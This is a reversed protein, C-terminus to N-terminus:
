AASRENAQYWDIKRTVFMTVALIAFSAMSGVLLAYDEERLLMFLLGYLLSLAGLVIVARLVSKLASIAYLFTLGITAGSSWLYAQEFGRHEALSLLLMYFVVQAVGVLLYQVAHVRAGTLLEVLFFSLFSLGIFLVAYKLAREVLQYHDVPQYLRVGFSAAKLNPAESADTTWSQPLSRTLSPVTWSAEFGQSTIKPDLPLTAGFFSPHVWNSTMKIETMRGLPAISFRDIGRLRVSIRFPIAEGPPEQSIAVHVGNGVASVSSGPEVSLGKQDGFDVTFDEVVGRMDSLGFSVIGEAWLIQEESGGLARIESMSFVGTITATTEYVPITFIGRKREQVDVRAEIKLREPAVAMVRKSSYRSVFGTQDKVEALTVPVQLVPGILTQEGGWSAAVERRAEDARSSREWVLTNILFLPVIMLVTLAGIAFFKLAPSRGQDNFIQTM